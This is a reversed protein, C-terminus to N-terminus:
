HKSSKHAKRLKAKVKQPNESYQKGEKSANLKTEQAAEKEEPSLSKWVKKPLYRTTVNGKDAQTQDVTQWDEKSWQHLSKQASSLTGKHKYDGGENEYAQKLLQSKRASWQGTKGGKDGQKIEEKLKERLDPRTYDKQYDNATKKNM